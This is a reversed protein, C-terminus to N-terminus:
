HSLDARETPCVSEDAANKCRRGGLLVGLRGTVLLRSRRRPTEIMAIFQLGMACRNTVVEPPMM